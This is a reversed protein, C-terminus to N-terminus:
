INICIGRTALIFLDQELQRSLGGKYASIMDKPFSQYFRDISPTHHGTKELHNLVKILDPLNM